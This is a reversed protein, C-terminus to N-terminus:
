YSAGTGTTLTTGGVETVNTSDSPFPISGTFADSDGTANFFSQGQSAMQKFIVEATADPSGGGWSCSLQKALNDNAMRSLLDDWLGTTNPAEYVYIHAIGPAMSIVMEIDLSVEVAGSGPTSVGGDVPVVTLPVNPLGAQSEYTTIDSAYFGDFQLLGVAQGAGTLTTGPVYATRFDSGRYTGGPGTGSNPTANAAASAPRIRSNPHPLSYNDLGSIHLIPVALDVSPEVDPAYFERAELPHRYVRLNLHFAKQIDTATGEVDLVVRNPHTATLTLGNSKAFDMVAQYDAETPGFRETFQETTLYHRYNPSAPDSLQRLLTDLEQEKRLPFGIALNLRESGPFTGIPALRMAAAPIHGGSLRQLTTAGASWMSATGMVLSLSILHSFCRRVRNRGTLCQPM